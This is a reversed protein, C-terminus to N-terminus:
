AAICYHYLAPLEHVEFKKKAALFPGIVAHVPGGAAKHYAAHCRKCLTLLNTAEFKLEPYSPFPYIHQANLTGGRQGCDRCTHDNCAIRLRVRDPTIGGKWNWCKPGLNVLRLKQRTNVTVGSSAEIGASKLWASATTPTVGLAQAIEPTSKEEQLYLRAAKARLHGDPDRSFQARSRQRMEDTVYVSRLKRPLGLEHRWGYLTPAPVGTSAAIEAIRRGESHMRELIPLVEKKRPDVAPKKYALIGRTWISTTGLCVGLAQAIERMLRGEGHMQRAVAIKEIDQSM